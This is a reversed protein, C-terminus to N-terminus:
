EVKKKKEFFRKGCVVCVRRGTYWGEILMEFETDSSKCHPCKPARVWEAIVASAIFSAFLVFAGFLLYQFFLM